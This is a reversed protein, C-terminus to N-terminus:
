VLASSDSNLALSLILKESGENAWKNIRVHYLPATVFTLFCTWSLIM